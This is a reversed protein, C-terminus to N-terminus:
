RGRDEDSLDDAHNLLENERMEDDSLIENSLITKMITAELDKWDTSDLNFEADFNNEVKYVLDRLKESIFEIIQSKTGRV